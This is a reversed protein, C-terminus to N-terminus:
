SAARAGRRVRAALLTLAAPTMGDIRAAQGITEPRAAELKQRLESSLGRISGYDLDLALHLSEDRRYSAVDAAQRDLYVAYRADTEIQSAIAPPFGGLQPWIRQLDALTVDPRALLDFATRRQGDLNL